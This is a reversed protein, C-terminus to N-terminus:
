KNMTWKTSGDPADKLVIGKKLLEDRIQDSKKFDKNKRATKREEICRLIEPEDLTSQALCKSKLENLFVQADSGFVGLVTHVKQVLDLFGKADNASLSNQDLARNLLRVWEFMLGVIKATNFDDDLATEFEQHAKAIQDRLPEFNQRGAGNTPVGVSVNKQAQEEVRALTQYYRELGSVADFVVQDTYDLPSRYHSNVIFLRIVEAPYKKLIDRITKFNGLSKSMKETDINVFGNHIWYKAFPKGTCGESQAIENEHHPFILDMGGGHIDFTEGLYKMSMASCEIHWGPRGEGWPSPWKPEGPKATKWLAFDLPDKKIENVDVRAGSELDEINKGSLKGYEKFSRVSFYVDGGVAYALGNKELNKVLTIIESINETAKPEITPSQLGLASTDDKFAQIFESTLQDCAIGREKARNIIKDDVDTFNRVFTVDYGKFKLYRFIVDFTILARAHGLHCYDYVTVGCAYMGVKGPKLPKFEEKQRSLTNYIKLM